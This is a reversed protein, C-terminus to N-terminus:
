LRQKAEKMEHPTNMQSVSAKLKTNAWLIAMLQTQNFSPAMQVKEVVSLITKFKGSM